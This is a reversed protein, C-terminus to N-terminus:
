LSRAIGSKTPIILKLNDRTFTVSITVMVGLLKLCGEVFIMTMPSAVLSFGNFNPREQIM